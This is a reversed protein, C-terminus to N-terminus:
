EKQQGATGTSQAETLAPQADTFPTTEPVTPKNRASRRKRPTTPSTDTPLRKTRVRRKPTPIVLVGQARADIPSAMNALATVDTPTATRQISVIEEPFPAPAEQIPASAVSASMTAVPSVSQEVATISDVHIEPTKTQAVSDEVHAIFSGNDVSVAVQSSHTRRRESVAVYVAIAIAVASVVSGAVLLLTDIVM